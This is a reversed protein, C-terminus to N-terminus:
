QDQPSNARFRVCCYYANAARVHQRLSMWPAAPPPPHDTPLRATGEGVAAVLIFAAAPRDRRSMWAAAAIVGPMALLDFCRHARPSLIEPVLAAMTRRQHAPGELRASADEDRFSPARPM